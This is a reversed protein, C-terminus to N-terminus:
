PYTTPFPNHGALQADEHLPKIIYYFLLTEGAFSEAQPPNGKCCLEKGGCHSLIKIKYYSIRFFKRNYSLFIGSEAIIRVSDPINMIYWIKVFIIATAGM